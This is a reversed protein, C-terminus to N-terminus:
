QTSGKWPFLSSPAGGSPWFYEKGVPHTNDILAMGMELDFPGQM